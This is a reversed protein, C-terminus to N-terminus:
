KHKAIKHKAIYYFDYRSVIKASSGIKRKKLRKLRKSREVYFINAGEPADDSLKVVSDEFVMIGKGAPITRVAKKEPFGRKGVHKDPVTISVSIDVDTKNKLNLFPSGGAFVNSTQIFVVSLSVV